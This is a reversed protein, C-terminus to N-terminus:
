SSIIVNPDYPRKVYTAGANYTVWINSYGVFYIKNPDNTAMIVRLGSRGFPSNIQTWDPISSAQNTFAAGATSRYLTGAASVLLVTDGSGYDWEAWIPQSDFSTSSIVSQSWASGALM